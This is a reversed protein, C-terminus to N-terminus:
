RGAQGAQDIARDLAALNLGSVTAVKHGNRSFVFQAPLSALQYHRALPSDWDRLNLKRVALDGRHAIADALHKDVEKCPGCWDAYFDVVTVKGPVALTALDRVDRGDDVVVKADAGDPYAAGAVYKGCGAGATAHFGAREVAALARAQDFSPEATITVEVRQKDFQVKRVGPEREIQSLVGGACEVCDLGQLSLVLTKSSPHACGVVGVISAVIFLKYM